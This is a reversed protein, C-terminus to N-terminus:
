TGEAGLEDRCTPNLLEDSVWKEARRVGDRITKAFTARSMVLDDQVTDLPPHYGMSYFAWDRMLKSTRGNGDVLGHVAILDRYFEGAIETAQSLSPRKGGLAQIRVRLDSFLGRTLEGVLDDSPHHVQIQVTGDANKEIEEIQLRPFNIRIQTVQAVTFHGFSYSHSSSRSHGRRYRGFIEDIIDDFIGASLLEETAALHIADGKKADDTEGILAFYAKKVSDLGAFKYRLVLKQLDFYDQETPLGKESRRVMERYANLFSEYTRKGYAYYPIKSSAPVYNRPFSDDNPFLGQEAKVWDEVDILRRGVLEEGSEYGQLIWQRETQIWNSASADSVCQFLTLIFFIARSGRVGFHM